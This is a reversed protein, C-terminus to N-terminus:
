KRAPSMGWPAMTVLEEGAVPHIAVCSDFDAKTAGMKMAVGFGQLVEDSGLGILHIGVVTEEPLTCILKYKSIPKDGSEGQFFCGYFLNVFSSNYVKVKDEGYKEIAQTETLGCTGITPHSFVVTPVNTYDAKAGAMGGFVRDALRRGAAIAMPTLEVEGCVDGLAYVGSTSTNQFEDVVIQGRKNTEVGVSALNLPETLAHRGTAALLCDFGCHSEGNQLHLTLSGDAEKVVEKSTAGTIITMGAKKMQADLHTSLMTDFTRLAKDGRVILSTDTGLGQFVGALEVAIYGAGLVGVKKPQTELAFFGDSDIVHEDGPVGLKNPAGGVAVLIHEATVTTSTGNDDVTITNPGAFSATGAIKAVNLKDLGSTYINNLRQIYRDRYRKIATWDFTVDGNVNIGFEKAQHITEMVHSTNFMVKKPVCGVNVCTGGWRGAEIVGVKAGYGAARKACGLGGSGGGIVLFDFDFKTTSTYSSMSKTAFLDKKSSTRKLRGLCVLTKVLM